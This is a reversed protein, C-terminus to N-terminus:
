KKLKIIKVNQDQRIHSDNVVIVENYPAYGDVDINLFYKGPYLAIMYRDTISNPYYQGILEEFQNKVQIQVKELTNGGDATILNILFVAPDVTNLDEYVIRYIDLDGYGDERFATIYAIDGTENWSISKENAPTNVPYGINQPTTWNRSLSDFASFFLDYGGMGPHGESCFYLTQGDGSLTPFDENLPTNIEAGLNQPAGWQGTSPEKRITWIDLNGQGGPRDSSFLMISGDQSVSCASEVAASNITPELKIPLGYGGKQLKSIYIDGFTTINDVYFFLTDGSNTLGVCQEDFDTNVKNDLRTTNTFAIGNNAASFIDSPFYGDFEPKAGPKIKRRSTFILLQEDKSIFPHYDPYMSNVEPGLNEFSVAVPYLLLDQAAAFNAKLRALYDINKKNIKGNEEFKGVYDMARDYQLHYTFATAIDLLHDAPMKGLNEAALLYELSQPPDINTRLYILGTKIQYDLVEPNKEVLIEYIKLADFYNGKEFAELALKPEQSLVPPSIGISIIGLSLAFPRLNIRMSYSM